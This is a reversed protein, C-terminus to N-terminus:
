SYYYDTMLHLLILDIGHFSYAVCVCVCVCVVWGWVCTIDLQISRFWGSM